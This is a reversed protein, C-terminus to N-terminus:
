RWVSIFVVSAIVVAAIGVLRHIIDSSNILSMAAKRQTEIKIALGVVGSLLVLAGIVGLLQAHRNGGVWVLLVGVCIRFVAVVYLGKGKIVVRLWAKLVEPQLVFVVGAIALVIAITRVVTVLHM